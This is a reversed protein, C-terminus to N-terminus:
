AAVGEEPIGRRRRSVIFGVLASRAAEIARLEEETDRVVEEPNTALKAAAKKAAKACTGCQGGRGSVVTGPHLAIPKSPHRMPRECGTCLKM